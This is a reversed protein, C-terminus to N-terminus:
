VAERLKMVPPRCDGMDMIVRRWHAPSGPTLRGLVRPMESGSIWPITIPMQDVHMLGCIAATTARLHPADYNMTQGDFWPAEFAQNLSQGLRSNAVLKGGPVLHM